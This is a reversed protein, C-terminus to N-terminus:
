ERRTCRFEMTVEVKPFASLGCLDGDVCLGEAATTHILHRKYGERCDIYVVELSTMWHPAYQEAPRLIEETGTERAEVVLRPGARVSVDYAEVDKAVFPTKPERLAEEGATDVASVSQVRLQVETRHYGTFAPFLDGTIAMQHGILRELRDRLANAEPGGYVDAQVERIGNRRRYYADKPDPVDQPDAAACFPREPTLVLFQNYGAEDKLALTGRLTTQKGFTYCAQGLCNVALLLYLATNTM